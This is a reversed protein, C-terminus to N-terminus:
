NGRALARQLRDLEDDHAGTGANPTGATTLNPVLPATRDEIPQESM